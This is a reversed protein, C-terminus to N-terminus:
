ECDESANVNAPGITEFLNIIPESVNSLGSFSANGQAICAYGFASADFEGEYPSNPVPLNFRLEGLSFLSILSFEVSFSYRVYPPQAFPIGLFRNIGTTSNYVGTFKGNDLVVSPPPQAPVAHAASVLLLPPLIHFLM